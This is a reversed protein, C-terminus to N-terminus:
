KKYKDSIIKPVACDWNIRHHIRTHDTDMAFIKTCSPNTMITYFSKVYTGNQNYTDSMGGKNKQTQKQM